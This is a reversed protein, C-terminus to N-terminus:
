KFNISWIDDIQRRNEFIISSDAIQLCYSILGSDLM